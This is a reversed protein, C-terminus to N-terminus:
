KVCGLRLKTALLVDTGNEKASLAATVGAGGGGIVLVDTEYDIKKLDVADPNLRSPSELLVVLEKPAMGGQNPGIRIGQKEASRFDPHYTELLRAKEAFALRPFSQGLRQPRSAEVKKVSSEMEIPYSM